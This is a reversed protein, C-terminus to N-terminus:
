ANHQITSIGVAVWRSNLSRSRQAARMTEFQELQESLPFPRDIREGPHDDEVGMGGILVLGSPDCACKPAQPSRGSSKAALPHTQGRNAQRRGNM